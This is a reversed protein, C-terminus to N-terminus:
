ADYRQLKPVLKWNGDKQEISAQNRFWIHPVEGNIDILADNIEKVKSLYDGMSEVNISEIM